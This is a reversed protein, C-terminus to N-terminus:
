LVTSLNLGVFLSSITTRSFQLVPFGYLFFRCNNQFLLEPNKKSLSKTKAMIIQYKEINLRPFGAKHKKSIRSFYLPNEYGIARSIESINFLLIEHWQFAPADSNLTGNFLLCLFNKTSVKAFVYNM